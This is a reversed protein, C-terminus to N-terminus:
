IVGRAANAVQEWKSAHGVTVSLPSITWGGNGDRVLKYLLKGEVNREITLFDSAIEDTGDTMSFSLQALKGFAESKGYAVVALVLAKVSSPVSGPKVVVTETAEGGGGAKADGTHVVSGNFPDLHEPGACSIVENRDNFAILLADLDLKGGVKAAMKAAFGKGQAVKYTVNLNITAPVQGSNNTVTSSKSLDISM